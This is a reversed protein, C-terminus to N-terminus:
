SAPAAMPLEVATDPRTIRLSLTQLGAAPLIVASEYVGPSTIRDLAAEVTTGESTEGRLVVRADTVPAGNRRAVRVAYDVVQGHSGARPESRVNIVLDGVLV